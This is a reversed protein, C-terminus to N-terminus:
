PIHSGEHTESGPFRNVEFQYSLAQKFNLQLPIELPITASAMSKM